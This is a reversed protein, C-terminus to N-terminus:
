QYVELVLPNSRSSFPHSAFREEWNHRSRVLRLEPRSNGHRLEYLSRISLEKFHRFFLDGVVSMNLETPKSM